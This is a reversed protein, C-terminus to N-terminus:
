RLKRNNSMYGEEDKMPTAMAHPPLIKILRAKYTM